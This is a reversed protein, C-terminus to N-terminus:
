IKCLIFDIEDQSLSCYALNRYHLVDDIYFDPHYGKAKLSEMDKRASTVKEKHIIPSDMLGSCQIKYLEFPTIM